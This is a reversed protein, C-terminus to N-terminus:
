GCSPSIWRKRAAALSSECFDPLGTNLSEIALAQAKVTEKAAKLANRELGMVEAMEQLIKQLLVPDSPLRDLDFRMAM